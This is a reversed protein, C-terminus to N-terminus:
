AMVVRCSEPSPDMLHKAIPAVKASRLGGSRGDQIAGALALRRLSLYAGAVM